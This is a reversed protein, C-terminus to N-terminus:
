LASVAFGCDIIFHTGVDLSIRYNTQRSTSYVFQVVEEINDDSTYPFAGHVNTYPAIIRAAINGQNLGDSTIYSTDRSGLTQTVTTFTGGILEQLLAVPAHKVNVKAYEINGYAPVAFGGFNDMFGAFYACKADYSFGSYDLITGVSGSAYATPEPLGYGLDISPFMQIVQSTLNQAQGFFTEGSALNYVTELKATSVNEMDFQIATITSALQSTGDFGYVQDGVVHDQMAVLGRATRILQTSKM